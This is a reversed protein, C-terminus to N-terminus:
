TMSRPSPCPRTPGAQWLSGLELRNLARHLDVAFLYHEHRILVILGPFDHIGIGELRMGAVVNLDARMNVGVLVLDVDHGHLHHLFCFLLLWDPPEGSNRM